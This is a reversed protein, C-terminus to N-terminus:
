YISVKIETLKDMVDVKTLALCTYKNVLCSRKLMVLDLWGCRRPRGTTVGSIFCLFVYM